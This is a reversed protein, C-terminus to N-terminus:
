NIGWYAYLENMSAGKGDNDAFEKHHTINGKECYEKVTLKMNYIEDATFYQSHLEIMLYLVSIYENDLRDKLVTYRANDTQELPKILAYGENVLDDWIDIEGKPFFKPNSLNEYVRGGMDLEHFDYTTLAIMRDFYKQMPEAAEGYYARIFNQIHTNMDSNVNWALKSQVYQKLEFFATNGNTGGSVGQDYLAVANNLKYFRYLDTMTNYTNVPYMYRVFDQSYGWIFLEESIASWAKIAEASEANAVPNQPDDYSYRYDTGIPALLVFVDKDLKMEPYTPVYAGSEDRKVPANLSARYSFIGLKVTRGPYETALWDRIHESLWNACLVITASNAGYKDIIAKSEPSSDWTNVDQMGFMIRGKDPNKVILEKISELAVEWMGKNSFNLDNPKGTTSSIQDSFYEPHEDYYDEIPVLDLTTAWFDGSPPTMMVEEPTVFRLRRLWLNNRWMPTTPGFRIDFTPISKVTLAKLKVVDARNLDYCDETYAEYGFTYHLFDYVAYLAALATKGLMFVTNGKTVINFGSTGVDDDAKVGADEALKNYGISLYKADMTWVANNDRVTGIKAGTAETFFHSLEEAAFATISDGNSPLVIKYDTKGSSALMVDTENEEAFSSDPIIPKENMTNDGQKGCAALSFM